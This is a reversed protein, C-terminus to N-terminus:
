ASGKHIENVVEGTDLDVTLNLECKHYLVYNTDIFRHFAKMNYQLAYEYGESLWKAFYIPNDLGTAKCISVLKPNLNTELNPTPIFNAWEKKLRKAYDYMVFEKVMNDCKDYRYRAGLARLEEELTGNEDPQHMMLDHRLTYENFGRTYNKWEYRLPQYGDKHWNLKRLNTNGALTTHM